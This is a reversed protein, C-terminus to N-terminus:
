RSTRVRARRSRPMPAECLGPSPAWGHRHAPDLQKARQADVTGFPLDGPKTSLSRARQKAVEGQAVRARTNPVVQGFRDPRLGLRLRAPTVEAGREGRQTALQLRRPHLGATDQDAPAVQHGQVGIRYRGIDSVELTRQAQCQLHGARGLLHQGPDLRDLGVASLQQRSERIQPDKALSLAEGPAVELRDLPDHVVELPDTVVGARQLIGIPRHAGVRQTIFRVARHDPELERRAVHLSRQRVVLLPLADRGTLQSARGRLLRANQHLLEPPRGPARANRQGARLWVADGALSVARREQPAIGCHGQVRQRGGVAFRFRQGVIRDGEEQGIHHGAFRLAPHPRLGIARKRLAAQDCLCLQLPMPAALEAAIVLSDHRHEGAGRAREAAGNHKLLRSPLAQPREPHSEM